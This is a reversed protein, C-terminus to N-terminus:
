DDLAEVPGVSVDGTIGRIKVVIKGNSEHALVIAATSTTGDPYFLIPQSWGSAQEGQNAQEIEFARAASVVAVTKVVINEPLDLSEASEPDQDLTIATGQAAGNLLASQSGTQDFAEVADASSFYPRIRVDGEDLMAEMMMVRGEKMAELRLDGMKVRLQNAGRVLRRDGLLFGFQPIIVAALASLVALTLLLEILTFGRRNANPLSSGPSDHSNVIAHTLILLSSARSSLTPM